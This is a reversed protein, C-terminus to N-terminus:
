AAEPAGIRRTRHTAIAFAGASVALSVGFLVGGLALAFALHGESTELVIATTM